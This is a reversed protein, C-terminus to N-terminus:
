VSDLKRSKCDGCDQQVLALTYMGLPPCWIHQINTLDAKTGAANVIVPLTRFLKHREQVDSLMGGQLAIMFVGMGISAVGTNAPSYAEM